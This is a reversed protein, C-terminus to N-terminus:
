GARPMLAGRRMPALAALGASPPRAPSSTLLNSRPPAPARGRPGRAGCRWAREKRGFGKSLSAPRRSRRNSSQIPTPAATPDVPAHDTKTSPRARWPAAHTQARHHTSRSAPHFHTPTFLPRCSCCFPNISLSLPLALSIIFARRLLPVPRAIAAAARARRQLEGRERASADWVREIWCCSGKRVFMMMMMILLAPAAAASSRRRPGSEPHLGRGPRGEDHDDDEETGRGVNSDSPMSGRRFSGGPTSRGVCSCACVADQNSRVSDVPPPASASSPARRGGCGRTRTPAVPVPM